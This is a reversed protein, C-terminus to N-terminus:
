ACRASRAALTTPSTSTAAPTSPWGMPDSLGESVFTSVSGSPTMKSVTDNSYNAVYLNGSADFALGDPGSLGVSAFTSVSGSPTVKSITDNSHNAVYLNGSSDFALGAPGSLGRQQLHEGHREADGRRHHQQRLQHRLPQRERRLGRWFHQEAGRLCIHSLAPQSTFRSSASGVIAASAINVDAGRLAISVGYLYGNGVCLTGVGDDGSGSSSM